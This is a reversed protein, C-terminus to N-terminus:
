RASDAAGPGGAARLMATDARWQQQLNDFPAVAPTALLRALCAAAVAIPVLPVLVLLWPAPMAAVPLSAWFLLAVGGLTVAVSAAALAAALLVAQQRWRTGLVAAEDGALALYAGAHEALLDPRTTALRFLRQLM